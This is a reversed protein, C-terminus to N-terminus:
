SDKHSFRWNKSKSVDVEIFRLAHLKQGMQNKYPFNHLDVKFNKWLTTPPMGFQQARRRVLTEPYQEVDARVADIAANNRRPRQNQWLVEQM